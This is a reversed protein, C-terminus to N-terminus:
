VNRSLALLNGRDLAARNVVQLLPEGRLARIVEDLARQRVEHIAERSHSACHPSLVVNEM